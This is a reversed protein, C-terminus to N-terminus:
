KILMIKKTANFNKNNSISQAYFKVFYIGSSFQSGDWNLSHIGSEFNGEAILDVERGLINFISLKVKSLEPLSFKINTVPNFPNPYNQYLAFKQPISNNEEIVGTTESTFGASLLSFHKPYIIFKNETIEKRIAVKDVVDSNIYFVEITNPDSINLLSLFYNIKDLSIKLFAEKDGEFWYYGDSHQGSTEGTIDVYLSFLRKVGKPQELIGLSCWFNGMNIKLDINEKLSGSPIGFEAGVFINYLYQAAFYEAPLTVSKFTFSEGELMSGSMIEFNETGDCNEIIVSYNIHYPQASITILSLFLITLFKKMSIGKM